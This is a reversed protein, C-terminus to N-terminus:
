NKVLKINISLFKSAIKSSAPFYMVFNYENIWKYYAPRDIKGKSSNLLFYTYLLFVRSAIGILIPVLIVVHDVIVKFYILLINSVEEM